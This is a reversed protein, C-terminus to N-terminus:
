VGTRRGRRSDRSGRPEPGGSRRSRDRGGPPHPGHRAASPRREVRRPLQLGRCIARVRRDGSLLLGIRLVIERGPPARRGIRSEASVGSRNRLPDAAGTRRRRALDAALRVREVQSEQPAQTAQRGNEQAAGRFRCRFRSASQRLRRRVPRVSSGGGDSKAQAPSSPSAPAGIGSDLVNSAGAAADDSSRWGALSDEAVDPGSGPMMLDSASLQASVDSSGSLFQSAEDNTLAGNSVLGAALATPTQGEAAARRLAAIETANLVGSSEVADIFAEASLM